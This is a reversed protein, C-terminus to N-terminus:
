RPQVSTDVGPMPAPDHEPTIQTRAWMVVATSVAFTASAVLDPRIDFHFAALLGVAGTIVGSFVAPAVPRVRIAVQWAAVANLVVVFADVVAQNAWPMRTGIVAVVLALFAWVTNIVLAPDRGFWPHGSSANDNM